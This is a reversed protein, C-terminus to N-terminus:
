CKKGNLWEDIVEGYSAQSSNEEKPPCTLQNLKLELTSIRKELELLLKKNKTM